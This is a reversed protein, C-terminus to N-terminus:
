RLAGYKNQKQTTIQTRNRYRTMQGSKINDEIQWSREIIGRITDTRYAKNYGSIRLTNSYETLLKAKEKWDLYM